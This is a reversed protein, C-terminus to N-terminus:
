TQRDRARRPAGLYLPGTARATPGRSQGEPRPGVEFEYDGMRKEAERSIDLANEQARIQFELSEVQGDLYELIVNKGDGKKKVRKRVMLTKYLQENLSKINAKVQRRGTKLMKAMVVPFNVNSVDEGGNMVSSFLQIITREIEAETTKYADNASGTEDYRKRREPDKLIGYADQVEQLKRSAEPDEKNKDPHYDKSLSRYASKIDSISADPEVGLIEYPNM